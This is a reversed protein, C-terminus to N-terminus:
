EPLGMRRMLDAYRPDSRVSDFAPSRICNILESDEGSFSKELHEFTKDRDGTLAFSLAVDAQVEASDKPVDRSVIALMLSSYGNADASFSGPAASFKQLESVADGFHGTTAYLESLYLHVGSWSPDRDEVKRFEALSEPYRRAANLTLAYNMNV